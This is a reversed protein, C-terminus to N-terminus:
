TPCLGCPQNRRGEAALGSGDIWLYVTGSGGLPNGRVASVPQGSAWNQTHGSRCVRRPEGIWILTGTLLPRATGSPACKQVARPRHRHPVSTHVRRRLHRRHGPLRRHGGAPRSPEVPARRRCPQCVAEVELGNFYFRALATRM